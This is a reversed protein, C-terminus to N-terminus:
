ANSNARKTIAQHYHFIEQYFLKGFFKRERIVSNFLERSNDFLASQADDLKNLASTLYETVAGLANLTAYQINRDPPWEEKVQWPENRLRAFCHIIQESLGVMINPGGYIEKIVSKIEAADPSSGSSDRFAGERLCVTLVIAVRQIFQVSQPPETILAVESRFANLYERPTIGLLRIAMADAYCERFYYACADITEEFYCANATEGGEEREFNKGRRAFNESMGIWASISESRFISQDEPTVATDCLRGFTEQTLIENKVTRKLQRVAYDLYLTKERNDMRWTATARVFKEMLTKALTSPNYVHPFRGIIEHCLYLIMHQLRSTRRRIDDGFFHMCEHALQVVFQSPKYVFEMPFEIIYVQERQDIEPATAFMKSIRMQQSLTPVLLFSYIYEPNESPRDRNSANLAASFRSLFLHYFELMSESLTTYIAATSGLPHFIIDDIKTIQATLQNWERVFREISYRSEELMRTLSGDEKSYGKVQGSLYRNVVQLCGWVLYSPGHLVPLTDIRAHISSLELFVDAWLYNKTSLESYIELFLNYVDRLVPSPGKQPPAFALNSMPYPAQFETFINWCCNDVKPSADLFYKMLDWFQTGDTEGTIHFDNEGFSIRCDRGEEPLLSPKGDIGEFLPQYIAKHFEEGNKISGRIGIPFPEALGSMAGRLDNDLTGNKLPLNIFTYTERAKGQFSVKLTKMLTEQINNTYWLIVLDCLNISNYVAYRFSDDKGTAKDEEKCDALYKWLADEYSENGDPHAAGYVFTVMLFPFRRATENSWFERIKQRCEEANQGEMNAVIHLPHYSINPARWMEKFVSQKDNLLEELWEPGDFDMRYTVLADFDGVTFFSRRDPENEKIHCVSEYAGEHQGHAKCLLLTRVDRIDNSDM